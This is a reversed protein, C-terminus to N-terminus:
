AVVRRNLRTTRRLEEWAGAAFGGVVLLGISGGAAWWGIHEQFWGLQTMGLGFSSLGLWFSVVSYLKIRFLM